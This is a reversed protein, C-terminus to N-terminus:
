NYFDYIIYKFIYDLYILLEDEDCTSLYDYIPSGSSTDMTTLLSSTVTIGFSIIDPYYFNNNIDMDNNMQIIEGILRNNLQPFLRTFTSLYMNMTSSEYYTNDLNLLQKSKINKFVEHTYLVNLDTFGIKYLSSAKKFMYALDFKQLNTLRSTIENFKDRNM